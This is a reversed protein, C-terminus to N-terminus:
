QNWPAPTRGLSIAYATVESRLQDYIIGSLHMLFHMDLRVEASSLSVGAGSHAISNRARVIRALEERPSRIVRGPLGPIEPAAFTSSFEQNIRKWPDKIGVLRLLDKVTDPGPNGGTDIAHDSWIRDAVYHRAIMLTEALRVSNDRSVGHRKNQLAVNINQQVIHLQLEEPLESLLIQPSSSAYQDLAYTVVDRLFEEFRACLLVVAGSVFPQYTISQRFYTLSPDRDVVADAVSLLEAVDKLQHTFKKRPM